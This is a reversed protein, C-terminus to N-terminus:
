KAKSWTYYSGGSWPAERLEDGTLEKIIKEGTDISPHVYHKSKIFELLDYLSELIEPSRSILEANAEMRQHAGKFPDSLRVTCIPATCGDAWIEKPNKSDTSVKWPGGTSKLNRM